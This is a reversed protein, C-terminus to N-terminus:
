RGTIDIYKRVKPKEDVSSYGIEDSVDYQSRHNKEYDQMLRFERKRKNIKYQPLATNAYALGLLATTVFTIIVTKKKM